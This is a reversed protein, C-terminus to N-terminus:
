SVQTGFLTFSVNATNAYVTIIDTAALSMGFTLTVTDNAPITGNYIIYHDTSLAAGNKRAAVRYSIASSNQNCVALTSVIASNAAPVTYLDTNTTATPSTQGLIQYSFAM